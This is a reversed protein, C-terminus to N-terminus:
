ITGRTGWLVAELVDKISRILYRSNTGKTQSFFCKICLVAHEESQSIHISFDIEGGKM